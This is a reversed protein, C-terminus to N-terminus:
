MLFGIWRGALVTGTWVALSLAASVKTAMAVEGTALVARWAKGRHLVAANVVGFAILTLKALFAPNELYADPRTSFLLVGFIVAGLFGIAATKSLLGAADRVSYARFLGLLRLDLATISGVLLGISFIHGANVFIYATASNRLVDALPLGAIAGLVDM